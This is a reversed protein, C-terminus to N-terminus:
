RVRLLGTSKWKGNEVRVGSIFMLRTDGNEDFSWRGILGNYEIGRVAELVAARDAKGAQKIAALALGMIDYGLAGFPSPEYNFRKQFRSTFDKGAAGMDEPSVSTFTAMADEAPAGVKDIFGQDYITDAGMFAATSGASRFATLFVIAAPYQQAFYVVDPNQAAADAAAEEPKGGEEPLVTTGVITLGVTGATQQFSQVLGRGYADEGGVIYVRSLGLDKIWLAAAPGQMDDPTIMRFFTRKGSPYYTGPEGAAFGPKTLGPYSASPSIQAVGARNLIPISNKSEGSTFSGIFVLVDPNDAAKKACAQVQETVPMGDPGATNCVELEVTFDGARKNAEELALQMAHVASWAVGDGEKANLPLGAVIKVTKQQGPLCASLSTLVLAILVIYLIKTKM